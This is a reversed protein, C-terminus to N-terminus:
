LLPCSQEQSTKRWDIWFLVAVSVPALFLLLPWLWSFFTEWVMGWDTGVSTRFIGAPNAHWDLATPIASVLGALVVGILVGRVFVMVRKNM